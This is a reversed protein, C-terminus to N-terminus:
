SWSIAIPPDPFSSLSLKITRFNVSGGVPPALSLVWSSLFPNLIINHRKYKIAEFNESLGILKYQIWKLRAQVWSVVFSSISQRPGTLITRKAGFAPFCWTRATPALSTWTIWMVWVSSLFLNLNSGCFIIESWSLLILKSFHQTLTLTVNKYGASFKVKQFKPIVFKKIELITDGPAM